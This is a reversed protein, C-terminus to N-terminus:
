KNPFNDIFWDKSHEEYDWYINSMEGFYNDVIEKMRINEAPKPSLLKADIPAIALFSLFGRRNM